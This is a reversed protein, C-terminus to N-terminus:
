ARGGRLQHDAADGCALADFVRANLAGYPLTPGQTDDLM